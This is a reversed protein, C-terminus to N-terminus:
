LAKLMAQFLQDCQVRAAEPVPYEAAAITTFMGRWDRWAAIAAENTARERMRMVLMDADMRLMAFLEERTPTM